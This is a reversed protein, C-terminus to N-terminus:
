TLPHEEVPQIKYDSPSASPSPTRSLNKLSNNRSGISQPNSPNSGVSSGSVSVDSNNLDLQSPNTPTWSIPLLPEPSKDSAFPNHNIPISQSKKRIPGGNADGNGKKNSEELEKRLFEEDIEKIFNKNLSKFEFESADLIPDDNFSSQNTKKNNENNSNNSENNNNNNENNNNSTTSSNVIYDNTDFDLQQKTNKQSLSMVSNATEEDIGFIKKIKSKSNNGMNQIENYKKKGSMYSNYEEPDIKLQSADINEIFQVAIGFSTFYYQREMRLSEPNVFKSIFEFNSYLNPINAHIVIYILHPLFDDAGGPSDSNSLLFLIIKCCNLVCELKQSPSYLDNIAQLEQEAAEWLDNNWYDPSIELHQPEVFVLRSMRESLINDKDVSEQTSFVNRYINQYLYIEIEALPPRTIDEEISSDSQNESSFLQSSLQTQMERLFSLVMEAQQDQSINKKRQFDKTFSNCSKKMKEVLTQLQAESIKTSATAQARTPSSPEKLYGEILSDRIEKDMKSIEANWSQRLGSNIPSPSVWSQRQPPLSGSSSMGSISFNDISQSRIHISKSSARNPRNPSQSPSQYDGSMSISQPPPEYTDYDKALMEISKEVDGEWATLAKFLVEEQYRPFLKSLFSIKIEYKNKKLDHNFVERNYNCLHSSIESLLSQRWGGVGDSASPSEIYGVCNAINKSLELGQLYTITESQESSDRLDRQLGVLIVAAEPCVYRVEEVWQRTVSKFSNVDILSFTIIVFHSISLHYRQEELSRDTTDFTQICLMRNNSIIHSIILNNNNSSGYPISKRFSNNNNEVQQQLPDLNSNSNDLSNQNQNNNPNNNNNSNQYFTTNFTQLFPNSIKPIGIITCTETLALLSDIDLLHSWFPLTAILFRVVHDNAGSQGYGGSGYGIGGGNGGFIGNQANQQNLLEHSHNIDFQTKEFFQLVNKNFQLEKITPHSLLSNTFKQLQEKRQVIFENNMKGFTKKPPFSLRSLPYESTIKLSLDSFESYRRYITYITDDSLIVEMRYITYPNKKPSFTKNDNNNENNNITTSANDISSSSTSLPNQLPDNIITTKSTSSSSSPLSNEDVGNSSGNLKDTSSKKSFLTNISSVRKM